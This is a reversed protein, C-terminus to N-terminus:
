IEPASFSLLQCFTFTDVLFRGPTSAMVFAEVWKQAVSLQESAIKESEIGYAMKMIMRGFNSRVIHSVAGVEQKAVLIEQTLKRAFAIEVPYYKTAADQHLHSHLLRRATRWAGGYPALSTAWETGM